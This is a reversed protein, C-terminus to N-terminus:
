RIVLGYKKALQTLKQRIEPDSEIEALMEVDIQLDKILQRKVAIKNDTARINSAGTNVTLMCVAFIGLILSCILISYQKPIFSLIMFLGFVILQVILYITSIYLVPLGLFKSKMNKKSGSFLWWVFTQVAFAIVSFVYAVWFTATKETPIIFAILNFLIFAIGIVIYPTKNKM